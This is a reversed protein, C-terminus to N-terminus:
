KRESCINDIINIIPLYDPSIDLQYKDYESKKFLMKCNNVNTKDYIIQMKKGLLLDSLIAKKLRDCGIGTNGYFLDNNLSFKFKFFITNGSNRSLGMEIIEGTSVEFNNRLSSKRFIGMVLVFAFLLFAITIKISRKEM